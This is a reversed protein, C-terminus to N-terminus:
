RALRQRETRQPNFAHFIFEVLRASLQKMTLRNKEFRGGSPHSTLQAKKNLFFYQASSVIRRIETKPVRRKDGVKTTHM